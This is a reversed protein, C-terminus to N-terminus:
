WLCDPMTICQGSGAVNHEARAPGAHHRWFGGGTLAASLYDGGTLAASLHFYLRHLLDLPIKSAYSKSRRSCYFPGSFTVEFSKSFWFTTV